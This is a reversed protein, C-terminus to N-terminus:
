AQSVKTPPTWGMKCLGDQDCYEYETCCNGNGCCQYGGLKCCGAENECCFSNPMCCYIGCCTDCPYYGPECNTAREELSSHNSFTGFLHGMEDHFALLEDSQRLISIGIE